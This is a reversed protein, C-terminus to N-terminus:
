MARSSSPPTAWSRKTVALTEGNRGMIAVSAGDEVLIQATARGIGSNGGTIAYIRGAMVSM